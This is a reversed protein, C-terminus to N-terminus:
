DKAYNVAFNESRKGRLGIWLVCFNHFFEECEILCGM